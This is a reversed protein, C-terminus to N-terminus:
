EPFLERLTQRDAELDELSYTEHEGMKGLWEETDWRNDFGLLQQLQYRTITRARYSELAFRELAARGLDLGHAAQLREAIEDPVNLTLQM